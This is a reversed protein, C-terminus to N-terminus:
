GTLSVVGAVVGLGYRRNLVLWLIFQLAILLWLMRFGSLYVAALLLPMALCTLIRPVHTPWWSLLPLVLPLAMARLFTAAQHGWFSFQARAFGDQGVDPATKSVFQPFLGRVGPYFYELLGLAGVFTATVYFLLVVTKWDRRKHLVTATLIFVPILLLFTQVESFMEDWAVDNRGGLIWGWVWFPLLLWVWGPVWWSTWTRPSATLVLWLLLGVMLLASPHLRFAETATFTRYGLGLSMIWLLFGWRVGARGSVVVCSGGIALVAVIVVTYDM